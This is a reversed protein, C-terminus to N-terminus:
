GPDMLLFYRRAWCFQHLWSRRFCSFSCLRSSPTGESRPWGSRRTTRSTPIPIFSLDPRLGSRTRARIFRSRFLWRAKFRAARKRTRSGPQRASSAAASTSWRRHSSCSRRTATTRRRSRSRCSRSSAWSAQSHFLHFFCSKVVPRPHPLEALLADHILTGWFLHLQVSTLEIGPRPMPTLFFGLQPTWSAFM